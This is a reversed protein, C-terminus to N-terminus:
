FAGEERAVVLFIFANFHCGNGNGKCDSCVKDNKKCFGDIINLTIKM